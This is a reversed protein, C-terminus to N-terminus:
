SDTPKQEEVVEKVVGSEINKALVGELIMGAQQLVMVKKAEETSLSARITNLIIGFDKGTITFTDTPEWKYNKNPDYSAM